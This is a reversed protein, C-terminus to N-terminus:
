LSAQFGKFTADRAAPLGNSFTVNVASVARNRRIEPDFRLGGANRKNQVPL